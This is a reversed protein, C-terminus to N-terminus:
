LNFIVVSILVFITHPEPLIIETCYTFNFTHNRHLIHLIIRTCTASWACNGALFQCQQWPCGVREGSTRGRWWRCVVKWVPLVPGQRCVSVKSVWYYNCGKVMKVGSHCWLHPLSSSFWHTLSFAFSFSRSLCVSLCVSVSLYLSLSLCLCVSLSLSLPLSASLFIFMQLVIYGVVCALIDIIIHIFCHIPALLSLWYCSSAGEQKKMGFHKFVFAKLSFFCFAFFFFLWIKQYILVLFKFIAQVRRTSYELIEQM